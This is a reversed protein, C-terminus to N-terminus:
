ITPRPTTPPSHQTHFNNMTTIALAPAGFAALAQVAYERSISPFAATFDYLILTPDQEESLAMMHAIHDIEVVNSLETSGSPIRKPPPAGGRFRSRGM